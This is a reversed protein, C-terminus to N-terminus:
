YLSGIHALTGTFRLSGCQTLTGNKLLTFIPYDWVPIAGNRNLERVLVELYFRHVSKLVYRRVKTTEQGSYPSRFYICIARGNTSQGLLRSAGRMLNLLPECAYAAGSAIAAPLLLRGTYVPV